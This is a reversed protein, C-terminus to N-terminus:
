ARETAGGDGVGDTAAQREDGGADDEAQTDGKLSACLVESGEDGAAEEGAEADTEDGHEYGHVLGLTRGLPDAACDDAAVLESDGDADEEGIDNVVGGLVAGGM